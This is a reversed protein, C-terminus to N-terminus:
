AKGAAKRLEGKTVPNDNQDQCTVKSGKAEEEEWTRLAQRAPLFSNPRVLGARTQISLRYMGRKGHKGGLM